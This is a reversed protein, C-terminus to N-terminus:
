DNSIEKINGTYKIPLGIFFNVVFVQFTQM